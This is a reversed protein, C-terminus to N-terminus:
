KKFSDFFTRILSALMLWPLGLIGAIMVYAVM